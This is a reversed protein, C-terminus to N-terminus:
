ASPNQKPPVVLQLREYRRYSGATVGMPQRQPQLNAALWRAHPARLVAVLAALETDTLDDPTIHTLIQKVEWVLHPRVDAAESSNTM